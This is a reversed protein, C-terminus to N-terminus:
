ARIIKRISVWWNKNVIFATLLIFPFFQLPFIFLLISATLVPKGVIKTCCATVFVTILFGTSGDIWYTAIYGMVTSTFIAPFI